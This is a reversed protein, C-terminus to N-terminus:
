GRHVGAHCDGCVNYATLQACRCFSCQCPALEGDPELDAEEPFGNWDELGDCEPYM